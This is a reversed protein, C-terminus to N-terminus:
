RYRFSMDFEPGYMSPIHGAAAPHAHKEKARMEMELLRQFADPHSISSGGVFAGPMGMGFSGYNSRQPQLAINHMNNTEPVFGQMHNIQHPLQMVRPFGPHPLQQPFNGPTSLQQLMLHYSTPDMHPANAHYANHPVRNELFNQPDHFNQEPRIHNMQQNGNTLHDLLAHLPMANNVTHFSARGQSPHHFAGTNVLDHPSQFSGPNQIDEASRPIANLLNNNLREANMKSFLEEKGTNAFPIPDSIASELADSDIILSQEDPLHFDLIKEGSGVTGLPVTDSHYGPKNPQYESSRSSFFSADPNPFPLGASSPFANTNTGGDPVRQSSVPAQASQLENMFAAGFLAELTLTKDASSMTETSNKEPIPCNLSSKKDTLSSQHFFEVDLGTGTTMEENKTGKQLLSLLHQSAHKNIDSKKLEKNEDTRTEPGQVMMHQHSPGGKIDALISQELDECTLVAPSSDLKDVQHYQESIGIALTTTPSADFKQTANSIDTSDLEEHEFVKDHSVISESSVVKDNNVILSLLNKSSFDDSPKNEEELFWSAFKSSVSVSSTWPEKDKKLGLTSSSTSSTSSTGAIHLSGGLLKELISVSSDHVFSNTGDFMEKKKDHDNMIAEVRIENVNQLDSATSSLSEIEHKRVSDNFCVDLQQRKEKDTHTSDLHKNDVIGAISAESAIYNSQVPLIKDAASAFGPPVLPRSLPAHMTSSRPSEVESLSSDDAKDTKSIIRKKDASNELLTISDANPNHKHNNQKEQLAKRQERRMLEFSDRRRQEEARDESSYNTSGFTEDNCSDRDDKRQFPLAKYPRPPQYPGSTKNLTFQSAARSKATSPGECGSPRPFAGSGLLGDHEAHQSYRRSQTGFRQGIDQTNTERNSQLDGDRNNLRVDWRGSSARSYSVAVESRNPPPSTYDSRKTSQFSSGGFGRQRENLTYSAEDLESSLVSADFGNPLENCLKSFSLLEDRTYCVKTKRTDSSRELLPDENELSM